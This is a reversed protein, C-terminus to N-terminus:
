GLVGLLPGRVVRAASDFSVIAGRQLRQNGVGDGCGASSADNRESERVEVLALEHGHLWMNCVPACLLSKVLSIRRVIRSRTQVAISGGYTWASCVNRRPTPSLFCWLFLAFLYPFDPHSVTRHVPTSLM